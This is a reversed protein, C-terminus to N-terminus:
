QHAPDVSKGRCTYSEGPRLPTVLAAVVLLFGAGLFAMVGIPALLNVNTNM